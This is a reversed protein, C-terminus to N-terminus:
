GNMQMKIIVENNSEDYVATFKHKHCFDENMEICMLNAKELAEDITEFQTEQKYDSNKFCGCAREVRVTAM